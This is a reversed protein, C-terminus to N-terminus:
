QELPAGFRPRRMAAQEDGRVPAMQERAVDVRLGARDVGAVGDVVIERKRVPEAQREAKVDDVLIGIDGDNAAIGFRM